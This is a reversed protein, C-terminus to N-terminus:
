PLRDFTQGGTTLAAACALLPSACRRAPRAHQACRCLGPVLAKSPSGRGACLALGNPANAPSRLLGPLVLRLLLLARILPEARSRIARKVRVQAAHAETQTATPSSSLPLTLPFVLSRARPLGLVLGPQQWPCRDSAPPARVLVRPWPAPLMARPADHLSVRAVAPLRGAPSPPQGTGWRAGAAALQRRRRPPPALPQSWTSRRSVCKSANPPACAVAMPRSAMLQPTEPLSAMIKLVEKRMLVTPPHKLKRARM